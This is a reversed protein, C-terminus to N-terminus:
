LDLMGSPLTMYIIEKDEDIENIFDMTIPIYYEVDDKEVIFLANETSDDIDVIEGILGYESDMITFGIFDSASTEDSDEEETYEAKLVYIDHKIFQKASEESDIDSLKLLVTHNNKDRINDIFFPVFIGNINAILCSFQNVEDSDCLFSASIEGSIGHPKNFTGIEVIEERTIM